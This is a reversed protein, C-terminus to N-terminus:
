RRRALPTLVSFMDGGRYTVIGKEDTVYPKGKSCVEITIGYGPDNLQTGEGTRIIVWAHPVGRALAELKERRRESAAHTLPKSFIGYRAVAHNVLMMSDYEARAATRRLRRKTLAAGTVHDDSKLTFTGMVVSASMRRRYHSGDQNGHRTEGNILYALLVAQTLPDAEGDRIADSLSVIRDRFRSGLASSQSRLIGVVIQTVASPRVDNDLARRADKMMRRLARGDDILTGNGSFPSADCSYRLQDVIDMRSPLYDTFKEIRYSKGGVERRKQAYDNPTAGEGLIVGTNLEAPLNIEYRAHTIVMGRSLANM